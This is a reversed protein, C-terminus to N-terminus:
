VRNLAPDPKSRNNLPPPPPPPSLQQQQQGNSNQQRLLMELLNRQADTNSSLNERSSALMNQNQQNQSLASSNVVQSISAASAASPLLIRQQAQAQQLLRQRQQYEQAHTQLLQLIIRIAPSTTDNSAPQNLYLQSLGIIQQLLSDHSIFANSQTNYGPLPATNNQPGPAPPSNVIGRNGSSRSSQQANILDLLQQQLNPPQTTAAPPQVQLLSQPINFSAVSPQAQISREQSAQFGGGPPSAVSLTEHREFIDQVDSDMRM